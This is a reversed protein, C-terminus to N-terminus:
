HDPITLVPPASPTAQTLVYTALAGGGQAAATAFGAAAFQGLLALNGAGPPDETILSGGQGDNALHFLNGTFSQAPDLDIKFSGGPEAVTLVNGSGLTVSGSSSFGLFPLDVSDGPRFNAVAGDLVSGAEIVVANGGAQGLSIATGNAGSITAFNVITGGAGLYIGAGASGAITGYNTVSGAAGYVNIGAQSGAILAGTAGGAGNTISGGLDLDVGAGYQGAGTITGANSVTGAADFFMIGDAGGSILAAMAGGAGNAISGGFNLFVGVGYSGTAAVTGTNTVAGAAGNMNIGSNTGIIAGSNVITNSGTDYAGIAIGASGTITGANSITM